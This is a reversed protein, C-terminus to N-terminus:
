PIEVKADTGLRIADDSSGRLVLSVHGVLDHSFLFLYFHPIM